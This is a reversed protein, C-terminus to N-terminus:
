KEFQEKVRSEIQYFYKKELSYVTVRFVYHLNDESIPKIQPEKKISSWPLFLIEKRIRETLSNLTDKKKVNVTFSHSSIMEAKDAKTIIEKLLKSYPIFLSKGNETELELTRPKFSIIEGSFDNIKITEYLSFKGSTKFVIGSIYDKLIFWSSWIATVTLIVFLGIAFLQNNKTFFQIAWTLYLIWALLEILPLYKYFIKRNEKRKFFFPIFFKLLRFVFFLILGIFIFKYVAINSFEIDFFTM